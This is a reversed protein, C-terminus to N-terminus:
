LRRVGRVALSPGKELWRWPLQASGLVGLKAHSAEALGMLGAQHGSYTPM